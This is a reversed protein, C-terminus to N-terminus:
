QMYPALNTDVTHFEQKTLPLEPYAALAQAPTVGAGFAGDSGWLIRSVGIERIREAILNKKEKWHGIGAVGCIDFYVHAMRADQKAIARVFVFLASDVSPDDFGGAGALHAIQIPVDPASPLVKDLFVRAELAGYPRARNVSPRVHVVVAMGHKNAAKFVRQLQVVHRPNDLDVDSNGFHLKLGYHL